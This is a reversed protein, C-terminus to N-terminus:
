LGIKELWLERREKGIAILNKIQDAMLEQVFTRTPSNPHILAKLKRKIDAVDELNPIFLYQMLRENYECQPCPADDLTRTVFLDKCTPGVLCPTGVEWSETALLGYSEAYSLMMTVSMASLWGQLESKTLRRLTRLPAGSEGPLSFRPPSTTYVESVGETSRAIAIASESNKLANALSFVGVATNPMPVQSPISPPESVVSPINPTWFGAYHEACGRSVFGLPASLLGDRQNQLLTELNARESENFIHDFVFGGFCGHYMALVHKGQAKLSAMKRTYSACGANFLVADSDAVQSLFQPSDKELSDNSYKAVIVSDTYTKMAHEISVSLGSCVATVKKVAVEGALEIIEQSSVPTSSLVRMVVSHYKEAMVNANANKTIYQYANYALQARRIVPAASFINQIFEAQSDAVLCAGEPVHDLIGHCNYAVVPVCCAMAEAIVNCYGEAESRILLVHTSQLIRHVDPVFGMCQINSVKFRSKIKQQMYATEEDNNGRGYLRLQPLAGGKRPWNQDRVCADFAECMATIKKESESLRGFYSFNTPVPPMNKRFFEETINQSRYAPVFVKQDVGSLITTVPVGIGYEVLYRRVNVEVSNSVAIVERLWPRMLRISDGTSYTLNHATDIVQPKHKALRLGAETNYALATILVSPKVSDIYSAFQEPKAYMFTTNFGYRSRLVETVNKAMWVPDFGHPAIVHVVYDSKASLRAIISAFLTEIGGVIAFPFCFMVIPRTFLLKSRSSNLTMNTM